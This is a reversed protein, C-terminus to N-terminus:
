IPFWIYSIIKDKTIQWNDGIDSSEVTYILINDDSDLSKIVGIYVMNSQDPFFIVKDGVKPNFFYYYARSALVIQDKKFASSPRGKVQYPSFLYYYGFGLFLSTFLFIKFGKSM